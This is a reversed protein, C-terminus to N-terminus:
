LLAVELDTLEKFEYLITPFAVYYGDQNTGTAVEWQTHTCDVKVLKFYEIKDRRLSPCTAKYWKGINM